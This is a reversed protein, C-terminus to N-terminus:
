SASFTVLLPNLFDHTQIDVGTTRIRPFFPVLSPRTAPQPRSVVWRPPAEDDEVVEDGGGGNDYDDDTERQEEISGGRGYGQTMPGRADSQAPGVHRFAEQQAGEHVGRAGHQAGEYLGHAGHQAVEYMGQVRRRVEGSHGSDEQGGGANASRGDGGHEYRATASYPDPSLLAKVGAAYPRSGRSWRAVDAAHELRVRGVDPVLQSADVDREQPALELAVRRTGTGLQFRGNASALGIGLEVKGHRDQPDRKDRYVERQEIGSRSIDLNVGYIRESSTIPSEGAFQAQRYNPRPPTWEVSHMGYRQRPSSDVAVAGDSASAPSLRAKSPLMHSMSVEEWVVFGGDRPWSRAESGDDFGEVKNRARPQTSAGDYDYGTGEEKGPSRRGNPSTDRPIRQDLSNLLLGLQDLSSGRPTRSHPSDERQARRDTSRDSPTRWDDDSYGRDSGKEACMKLIEDVRQLTRRYETDQRPTRQSVPRDTPTRRDTADERPTRRDSGPHLHSRTLGRSAGGEASRPTAVVPTSQGQSLGYRAPATANDDHAVDRESRRRARGNHVLFDGGAAQGHTRRTGSVKELDLVPIRPTADATADRQHVEERGCQQKSEHSPRGHVADPSDGSADECIIDHGSWGERGDRWRSEGRREGEEGDFGGDGRGGGRRRKEECGQDLQRGEEM